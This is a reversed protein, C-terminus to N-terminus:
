NGATGGSGAAAGGTGAAASAGGASAGGASAGGASSAGGSGSLGVSTAGMPVFALEDIWIDFSASAFPQGAANMTGGSPGSANFVIDRVRDPGFPAETPLYSPAQLDGWAITYQKWDPTLDITARQRAYCNPDPPMLSPSDNCFGGNETPIYEPNGVLVLLKNTGEFVTSTGKAYFTIGGYKSADFPCGNSLEAALASGWATLNMGTFHLAMATNNAGPAVPTVAQTDTTSGTLGSVTGSDAGKSLDWYGSAAMVSIDSGLKFKSTGDDMNDIVDTTGDGQPYPCKCVTTPCCTQSPDCATAASGGSGSGASAVSSGGTSSSTGATSSSGGTTANGSGGTARSDDGSGGCATGFAAAGSLLVAVAWFNSKSSTRM